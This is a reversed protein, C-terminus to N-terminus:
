IFEDRRGARVKALIREAANREQEPMKEMKAKILLEGQQRTYPTAYGILYEQFSAISNPGCQSEMGGCRVIDMFEAGSRGLRPCATCFSPLHHAEEILFRVAEDVHCDEGIPFRVEGPGPQPNWSEYPNAVSGTLLQSGGADCGARWLQAPEKTTLIIGTYPIALRVISVCRQYDFDSVPYPAANLLRRPVPRLRHMSVTRCGSDYIRELHASHLTLALLDYQWPGLGLLIGLGVDPIGAQMAKDQANLRRVFNSKPGKVHVAKYSEEHYTDQYLLCTGMDAEKLEAYEENTLPPLNINVRRIEGSTGVRVQYITRAADLVYTLGGEPWSEGAVLLVRKHGQRILKTAAQVVEEPSMRKREVAENSHRFACYRCESDCYNSIHLPASLVVRDGYVMEKVRRAAALIEQWQEPQDAKILAATEQITLCALSLSKDLIDRLEAADPAKERQLATEIASRDLWKPVQENSMKIAGQLTSPVQPDRRPSRGSFSM